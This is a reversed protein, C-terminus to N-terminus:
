SSTTMWANGLPFPLCARMIASTTATLRARRGKEHPRLSTIAGPSALRWYKRAKRAASWPCRSSSRVNAREQVFVGQGSGGLSLIGSLQSKRHNLDLVRVCNGEHKTAQQMEYEM